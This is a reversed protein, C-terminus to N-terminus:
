YCRKKKLNLDTWYEQVPPKANSYSFKAQHCSVEEEQNKQNEIGTEGSEIWNDAATKLPIYKYGDM